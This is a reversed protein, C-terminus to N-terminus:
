LGSFSSFETGQASSTLGPNSDYGQFGSFSLLSFRGIRFPSTVVRLPLNSDLSLPLPLLSDDAAPVPSVVHGGLDIVGEQGESYVALAMVTLLGGVFWGRMGRLFRKILEDAIKRRQERM